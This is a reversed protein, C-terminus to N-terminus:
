KLGSNKDKIQKIQTYDKTLKDWAKTIRFFKRGGEPTELEEFVENM